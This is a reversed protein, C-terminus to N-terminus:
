LMKQQMIFLQTNFYNKHQLLPDLPPPEILCVSAALPLPDSLSTPPFKLLWAALRLMLLWGVLWLLRVSLLWGVVILVNKVSGGTPGGGSGGPGFLKM